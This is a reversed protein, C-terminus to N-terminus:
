ARALRPRGAPRTRRPVPASADSGGRTPAGPADTGAAANWTHRAGPLLRDLAPVLPAALALSWLLGNPRWLVFQVLAAGFAVCTAFVIRGARSDPTTRPDSIMFFAFLELGGSSLQHLPTALPQGLWAARAFLIAAWAGLFAFTVDSRAARTVVMTGLCAFAFFLLAAHGWQGGSVWVPPPLRLALPAALLVVIAFCTPNWIHRGGARLAFKSAVALAAALAAWGWHSVRLLLLLSAASILASRPEFPVRWRGIPLAAGTRFARDCAWQTALAAVVTAAIQAGPVQFGLFALGWALLLTQSAIQWLRPDRSSPTRTTLTM